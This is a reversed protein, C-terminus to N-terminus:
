TVSRGSTRLKGLSRPIWALLTARFYPFVPTCPRKGYTTSVGEGFNANLFRFSCFHFRGLFPTKRWQESLASWLIDHHRMFIRSFPHGETTSPAAYMVVAKGGGVRGRAGRPREPRPALIPPTSPAPSRKSPGLREGDSSFKARQRGLFAPRMPLSPQDPSYQALRVSPSGHSGPPSPRPPRVVGGPFPKGWPAKRSSRRFPRRHRHFQRRTPHPFPQERSSYRSLERPRAREGPRV